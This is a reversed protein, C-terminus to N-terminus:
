RHDTEAVKQQEELAPMEKLFHLDGIKNLCCKDLSKLFAIIILFVGVFLCALALNDVTQFESEVSIQQAKAFNQLCTVTRYLICYTYIINGVCVFRSSKM